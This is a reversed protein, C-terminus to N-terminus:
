VGVAELVDDPRIVVGGLTLAAVAATKSPYVQDSWQLSWTVFASILAMSAANITAERASVVVRYGRTVGMIHVEVALNLDQVYAPIGASKGLPAM